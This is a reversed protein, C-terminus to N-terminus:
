IAKLRDDSPEYCKGSMLADDIADAVADPDAGLEEVVAEIVAERAAGDGDDLDDMAEIAAGTLDLAADGESTAAEADDATGDSEVTDGGGAESAADDDSGGDGTSGVPEGLDVDPTTEPESDDDTAAASGPEGSASLDDASPVDIDASGPDDVETGTSFDTGFEDEIEAREEEDLEYMEDTATSEATSEEGADAAGAADDGAIAADVDADAEVDATADVDGTTGTDDDADADDDADTDDADTGEVAAEDADFEGLRGAAEDAEAAPTADADDTSEATATAPEDPEAATEDPEAATGDSEVDSAEAAPESASDATTETADDAVNEAVAADNGDDGADSAAAERVAAADISVDTEPLPGVDAPGGEDPAIEPVRVDDREGAILELADVAMRRTAELYALSTDYHDIARPVGEALAAPAGGAELATRLDEGRLDSALAAEFAALRDLTTEAARVVWRDRTDADVENLSEPRVSTFVRDSDEPQFTRAKGTLAVFTPPDARELFAQEDPQYQGAYTVFAGSPDVVRGRRTEENVREVETLVGVAFLRNVRAGLPTLVYNPAREEDSESYSLTADDFENAFLRYAVERTGPGSDSGSM